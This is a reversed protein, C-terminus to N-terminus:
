YAISKDIAESINNNDNIIKKENEESQKHVNRKNVMCPHM